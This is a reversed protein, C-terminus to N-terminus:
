FGELAGEQELLEYIDFPNHESRPVIVSMGETIDGGTIEIYYDSEIGTEVYIDQLINKGNEDVEETQVKVYKRGDNDLQVSEYPVTITNETKELIISLKATMDLKFEPDNSLVSIVVKYTVKSSAAIGAASVTARPAISKVEGSFEKDGTGNTKIVVEQGVKIKSIDYEDIETEIEYASVDEITVIPSGAVYTKEKDTGVATIVGSFPSYVKCNEIQEKYSDIQQKANLTGVSSSNQANTIAAAAGAVGSAASAASNNSSLVARDYSSKASTYTNNAYNAYTDFKNEKDLKMVQCEAEIDSVVVAYKSEYEAKKTSAETTNGDDTLKKIEAIKEYRENANVYIEGLEDLKKQANNLANEADKLSIEQSAASYNQNNVADNYQRKAANIQANLNSETVKLNLEAIELTKELDSSDLVCILDGEKVEDGVSVLIESVKVGNVNAFVIQSQSSTIKGTASIAEVLDRREVIATEDKSLAALIAKSAISAQVIIFAIFGIVTTIICLFIFLGKHRKIWRGM